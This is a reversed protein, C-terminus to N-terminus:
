KELLASFDLAEGGIQALLEEAGARQGHRWLGRLLDGAEGEEFWAEGHRERLTRRLHTELAWARLYRAAYFFPDVDSLWRGGPWTVHLANSLLEAYRDALADLDADNGHLELEYALKAAYRRLFVLKVARAHAAVPEPEEVELRRLLWERESTLHEFLFAFGETVSNDGLYRHEFSLGGDVHAYHEAHGAEHFLAEYDDRGGVRAIVLYVEDPVRVTACFARPSKRPRAELDLRVNPQEDIDIGLGALTERLSIVLRAEPFLADLGPARFFAPLDSSAVREFGFGLQDELRPGVSEEYSDETAAVFERTQLALAGLDIGSLEECM